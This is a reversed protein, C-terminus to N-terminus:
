LAGANVALQKAAGSSLAIGAGALGDDGEVVFQEAAEAAALGGAEAGGGASGGDSAVPEAAAALGAGFAEVGRDACGLEGGVFVEVAAEGEGPWLFLPCLRISEDKAPEDRKM